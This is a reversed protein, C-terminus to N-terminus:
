KFVGALETYFQTQTWSSKVTCKYKCFQSFRVFFNGDKKSEFLVLLVSMGNRLCAMEKLRLEQQSAASGVQVEICLVCVASVCDCYNLSNLLCDNCGSERLGWPCEYCLQGTIFFASSMM